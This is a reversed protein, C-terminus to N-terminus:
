HPDKNSPSLSPSVSPANRYSDEPFVSSAPLPISVDISYRPGSVSKPQALPQVEEQTVGAEEQIDKAEEHIDEAEEHINEVEEYINEAQGKTNKDTDQTVRSEEPSIM